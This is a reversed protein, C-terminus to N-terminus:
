GHRTVEISSSERIFKKNNKIVEKKNCFKYRHYLADFYAPSKPAHALFLIICGEATIYIYISAEVRTTFQSKIEV